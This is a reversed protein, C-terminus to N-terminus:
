GRANALHLAHYAAGAQDVVRHADRQGPLSPIRQPLTASRHAHLLRQVSNEEVHCLLTLEKAISLVNAVQGGGLEGCDAGTDRIAEIAVSGVEVAACSSEALCRFFRMKKIRRSKLSPHTFLSAPRESVSKRGVVLRRFDSPSTLGRQVLIFFPGCQPRTEPDRITQPPSVPIRVRSVTERRCVKWAHAKSWEAVEGHRRQKSWCIPIQLDRNSPFCGLQVFAFWVPLRSLVTGLM